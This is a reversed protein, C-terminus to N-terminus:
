TGMRDLARDVPKNAGRFRSEKLWQLEPAQRYFKKRVGQRINAFQFRELNPSEMRLFRVVQDINKPSMADNVLNYDFNITMYAEPFDKLLEIEDVPYSLDLDDALQREALYSFVHRARPDAFSREAFPRLTEVFWALQAETPDTLFSDLYSIATSRYGIMSFTPRVGCSVEYLISNAAADQEGTADLGRESLLLAKDFDTM